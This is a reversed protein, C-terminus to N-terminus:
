CLRHFDWTSNDYRTLRGGLTADSRTPFTSFRVGSRAHVTNLDARGDANTDGLIVVAQPPLTSPGIQRATRVPMARNATGRLTKLVSSGDSRVLRITLDDDRDDDIDGSSFHKVRRWGWSDSFARRVQDGFTGDRRGAFSAVQVGGDRAYAVNLDARGDDNTDGVTTVATTRLASRSTRLAETVQMREAAAGRAVKVSTTGDPYVFRAVLDEVGNGDVDGSRLTKLRRFNWRGHFGRRVKAGFTADGRGRFSALQIGGDRAYAANLDARGDGTTDALALVATPPLVSPDLSRGVVATMSQTARGPLVKISSTGDRRVFRAVMEDDGDGDVDGTLLPNRRLCNKSIYTRGDAQVRTGEVYLSSQPVDDARQEWHLHPSTSSGSSGVKGIIEGAAVPGELRGASLLHAYRSVWGGGHDIDVYYGYESHYKTHAVGAAAATVPKGLDSSGTGWNWDIGRHGSRTSATWGEGCQFPTQFM